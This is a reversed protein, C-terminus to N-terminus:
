QRPTWDLPFGAHLWDLIRVKQGTADILYWAASSDTESDWHALLLRENAIWAAGNESGSWDTARTLTGTSLELTFVDTGSPTHLDIALMSGDSSWPGPSVDGHTPMTVTTTMGTTVDTVLLNSAGDPSGYAVLSRDPSWSAQPGGPEAQERRPKGGSRPVSAEYSAGAVGPGEVAGFFIRKGDASWRPHEGEGLRVPSSHPAAVDIVNIYGVIPPDPEIRPSSGFAISRGDPSWVPEYLVENGSRALQRVDSGDGNAVYLGEDDTYAIRGPLEGTGLPPGSPPPPLEAGLPTAVPAARAGACFAASAAADLHEATYPEDPTLGNVILVSVRSGDDNALVNTLYGAVGGNIAWAEGCPQTSRFIGLGTAHGAPFAPNTDVLQKMEALERPGLVQGGLLAKFFRAVDGASSVIGGDAWSGFITATVDEPDAGRRVYYGNAHPSSLTSGPELATSTLGQPLFIRSKFEDDLSHGTAKEIVLGLIQYNTNSYRWSTGPAFDAPHSAAIRVLESPSPVDPTGWSSRVGQDQTYNFIGSTHNLLQRLTIANGNPIVKPLWKEVTDDLSLTQDAVLLLTLAATFTKTVSGVRFREEPTMKLAPDFRAEGGAALGRGEGDNILAVAGPPAPAAQLMSTVAANALATLQADNRPAGTSAAPAAGSASPTSSTTVHPGGCAALVAISVAGVALALRFRRVEAARSTRLYM